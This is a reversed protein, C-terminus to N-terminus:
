FGDPEVAVAHGVRVGVGHSRGHQAEDRPHEVAIPERIPAGAMLMFRVGQETNVEIQDGEGFMILASSM